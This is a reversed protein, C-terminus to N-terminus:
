IGLKKFMDDANECVLLDIGKEAEHIAKLTEENPIEMDFPLRHYNKVQHYFADIAEETTLGLQTFIDEVEAKLVPDIEVLLTATKSM